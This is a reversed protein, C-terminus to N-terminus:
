SSKFTGKVESNVLVQWLATIAKLFTYHRGYEGDVGIVEHLEKGDAELGYEEAAPLLIEDLLKSTDAETFVYVNLHELGEGKKFEEELYEKAIDQLGRHTVSVSLACSLKMDEAITGRQKEFAVAEDLGRLGYLVENSEPKIGIPIPHDYWYLHEESAARRLKEKLSSPLALGDINDPDLPVTILINSTFLFEREPHQIPSPNLKTVSVKRHNRLEAVKEEWKRCVDLGEPFFVGRLQEIAGIGEPVSEGLVSAAKEIADKLSTNERIARKVEESIIDLGDLYFRASKGWKPQGENEKLYNLASDYLPHTKGSLAILFAANLNRAASADDDEEPRFQAQVHVKLLPEGTEAVALRRILSHFKDIADASM